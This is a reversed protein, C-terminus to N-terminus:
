FLDFHINNDPNFIYMHCFYRNTQILNIIGFSKYQYFFTFFWQILFLYTNAVFLLFFICVTLKKILLELQIDFM